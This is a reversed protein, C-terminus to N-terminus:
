ASRAEQQRFRIGGGDDAEPTVRLEEFVLALVPLDWLSDPVAELATVPTSYYGELEGELTSQDVGPRAAARIAHPVPHPAAEAPVSLFPWDAATHGFRRLLETRVQTLAHRAPNGRSLILQRVIEADMRARLREALSGLRPFLEHWPLWGQSQRDAACCRNWGDALAELWGPRHPVAAAELLPTLAPDRVTEIALRTGRRYDRLDKQRLQPSASAAPAATPDPPDPAPPPRLLPIVINGARTALRHQFAATATGWGAFRLADGEGCLELRDRVQKELLHRLEDLRTQLRLAARRGQRAEWWAPIAAGAAAGLAVALVVGLFVFLSKIEDGPGRSAQWTMMWVRLIATASFAVLFATLIAFNLRGLLGVFARRAVGLEAAWARLQEKEDFLNRATHLLDEWRKLQRALQAPLDWARGWALGNRALDLLAAPTQAVQQWHRRIETVLRDPFAQEREHRLRQHQRGAHDLVADWADKRVSAEVHESWATPPSVRNFKDLNPAAPAPIADADSGPLTAPLAPFTGFSALDPAPGAPEPVTQLWDNILREWEQRVFLDVAAEDLDPVLELGRWAWLGSAEHAPPPDALLRLLLRAVALPWVHRSLVPPADETQGSRLWPAMVYTRLIRVAPPPPAAPAPASAATGDPQGTPPYEDLSRLAPLDDPQLKRTFVLVLVQSLGARQDPQLLTEVEERFRQQWRDLHPQLTDGEGVLVLRVLLRSALRHLLRRRHAEDDIPGPADPAEPPSAAAGPLLLSDPLWTLLRDFHRADGDEVQGSHRHWLRDPLAGAAELQDAASPSSLLVIAM